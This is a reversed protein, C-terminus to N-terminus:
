SVSVHGVGLIGWNCFLSRHTWSRGPDRSCISGVCVSPEHWRSNTLWLTRRGWGLLGTHKHCALMSAPVYRFNESGEWKKVCVHGCTFWRISIGWSWCMPWNKLSFCRFMFPLFIDMRGWKLHCTDLNVDSMAQKPSGSYDWNGLMQINTLHCQCQSLRETQFLLLLYYLFCTSTEQCKERGIIFFSLFCLM